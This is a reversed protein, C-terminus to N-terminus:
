SPSDYPTPVFIRRDQQTINIRVIRGYGGPNVEGAQHCNHPM